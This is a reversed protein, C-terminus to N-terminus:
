WGADTSTIYKPYFRLVRTDTDDLICSTLRQSATLQPRCWLTSARMLLPMFVLFTTFCVKVGIIREEDLLVGDYRYYRESTYVVYPLHGEVEEAFTTPSHLSRRSLPADLIRYRVRGPHRPDSSDTTYATSNNANITPQASDNLGDDIEDPSELESSHDNEDTMWSVGDSIEGDTEDAMVSDFLQLSQADPLDDMQMGNDEFPDEELEAHWERFSPSELDVGIPSADNTLGYGNDSVGPETQLSGHTSDVEKAQAVRQRHKSLKEKAETASQLKARIKRIHHPNFDIITIPTELSGGVEHIMACRQGASTTIWRTPTTDANFWRSVPPGWDAWPVGPGPNQDHDPAVGDLTNGIREYRQVLNLFSRRHIFFTYSRGMEFHVNVGGQIIVVPDGTFRMQFICIADEASALFGRKPAFPDTEDMGANAREQARRKKDLRSIDPIPNPEARCTIRDIGVGQALSPLNLSFVSKLSHAIPNPPIRFIDFTASISNPLLILDEALFM